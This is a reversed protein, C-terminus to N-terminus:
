LSSVRGIRTQLEEILSKLETPIRNCPEFEGHKASQLGAVESSIKIQFAPKLPTSIDRITVRTRIQKESINFVKYRWPTQVYGGYMDTTSIEDFYNLLIQHLLKWAPSADVKNNQITYYTQDLDITMFKNLLGSEASGLYFGDQQLTFSIDNRKDNGYYKTLIPKYENCEIKIIAVEKKKPKTFEAVGYGMLTNNVYIAAETPMVSIRVTKASFVVYACSLFIFLSFLKKM